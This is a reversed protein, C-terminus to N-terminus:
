KEGDSKEGTATTYVENVKATYLKVLGEAEELKHPYIGHKIAFWFWRVASIIWNFPMPACWAEGRNWNRWAYGYGRPFMSGEEIRKLFGRYKRAVVQNETRHAM